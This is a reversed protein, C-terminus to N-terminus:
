VKNHMTLRLHSKYYMYCAWVNVSPLYFPGPFITWFFRGCWFDIIFIFSLYSFPIEPFLCKQLNSRTFRMSSMLSWLISIKSPIHPFDTVDIPDSHSSCSCKVCFPLDKIIKRKICKKEYKPEKSTFYCSKIM